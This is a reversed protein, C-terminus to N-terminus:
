DFHNSERRDQESEAASGGREGRREVEDDLLLLAVGGRAGQGLAGCRGAGTGVIAEEVREPGITLALDGIVVTGSSM